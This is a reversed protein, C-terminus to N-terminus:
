FKGNEKSAQLEVDWKRNRKVPEAWCGNEGADMNEKIIHERLEEHEADWKRELKGQERWCGHEGRADWTRVEM